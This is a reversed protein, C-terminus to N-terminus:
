KHIICPALPRISCLSNSDHNEIISPHWEFFTIKIEVLLAHNWKPLLNTVLLICAFRSQNEERITWDITVFLDIIFKFLGHHKLHPSHKLVDGGVVCLIMVHDRYHSLSISRYLSVDHKNPHPKASISRIDTGVKSPRKQVVKFPSCSIRNAKAQKINVVLVVLSTVWFSRCM